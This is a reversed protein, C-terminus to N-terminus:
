PHVKGECGVLAEELVCGHAEHPLNVIPGPQLAEVPDSLKFDDNDRHLPKDGYDGKAARASHQLFRPLPQSAVRPVGVYELRRPAWRGGRIGRGLSGCGCGSIGAGRNLVGDGLLSPTRGCRVVRMLRRLHRHSPLWARLGGPCSLFVLRPLRPPLRPRTAAIACRRRRRYARHGAGCFSVGGGYAGGSRVQRLFGGRRSVLLLLLLLLLSLLLLLLQALAQCVARHRLRRRPERVNRHLHLGAGRGRM